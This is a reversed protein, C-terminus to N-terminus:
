KYLLIGRYIYNFPTWQTHHTNLIQITMIVTIDLHMRKNEFQVLYVNRNLFIHVKLRVVLDVFPQLHRLTM